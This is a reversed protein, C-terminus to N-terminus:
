LRIPRAGAARQLRPMGFHREIGALVSYHTFSRTRRVGHGTGPGRAACYVHNTGSGEDFTIVVIAGRRLLPPVHSRAWADGTSVSCDHMDDCLNPTIFTFGPIRDPLHAPYPRDHRPCSSPFLNRFYPPPNHRVAYPAADSVACRSPMSEEWARWRRDHRRLQSFVSRARFSRTPCADSSCGLTSGSTLALYNPLSPHAVAHYDTAV